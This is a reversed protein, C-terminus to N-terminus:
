REAGPRPIFTRELRPPEGDDQTLDDDFMRLPTNGALDELIGLVRLRHAGATWPKEPVFHWLTENRSLTVRGAVTEGSDTEVKLCRLALAHDLPEGFDIELPQRTGVVPAALKWHQPLPRRHDDDAVRFQKVVECALPQGDADRVAPTIVLRYTGGAHLVPGEEERLNVGQKVRGPHIWLTFRRAGDDWLETRRWPDLVENGQADLLRIHDFIDRGERMPKSFHIYFKLHNAPLVDTSPFIHEVVAPATPKRPPVAYDRWAVVRPVGSGDDPWRVTARYRQGAVLARRPVFQLLAGQRRYTGFIAPGVDGEDGLLGVSLVAEGEPQSLEGAPLRRAIEEPLRVSVVVHAADEQPEFRPAHEAPAM